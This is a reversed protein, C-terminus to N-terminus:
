GTQHSARLRCSQWHNACPWFVAIKRKASRTCSSHLRRGRGGAKRTLQSRGASGFSRALLKGALLRFFVSGGHRAPPQGVRGTPRRRFHVASSMFVLRLRVCETTAHRYSTSRVQQHVLQNGREGHPESRGAMGELDRAIEVEKQFSSWSRQPWQRPRRAKRTQPEHATHQASIRRAPTARLAFTAGPSGRHPFRPAPQRCVPALSRLAQRRM